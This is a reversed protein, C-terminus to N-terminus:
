RPWGRAGEHAGAESFRGQLEPAASGAVACDPWLSAVAGSVPTTSACNRNSWWLVLLTRHTM